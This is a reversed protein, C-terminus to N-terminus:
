KQTLAEASMLLFPLAKSYDLQEYFIGLRNLNKYYDNVHKYYYLESQLFWAKEELKQAIFWKEILRGARGNGDEFPHINVLILHIFSAYYFIEQHSLKENKLLLEIDNWLLDHSKSMVSVIPAEYQIRGTNHELIIMNGTRLVGQKSKPLLHKTLLAHAESFNTKTLENKKAFLYANYLDNPKQVLDPKFEINFMKHKIYSDVELKEGEIRSSAIVSVSTYFDFNKTSIEVDKLQIIKDSLDKDIRKCFEKLLDIQIIKFELDNM